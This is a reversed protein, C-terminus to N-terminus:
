RSELSHFRNLSQPYSELNLYRISTSFITFYQVCSRLIENALLILFSQWLLLSESLILFVELASTVRIIFSLVCICSIFFNSLYKESFYFLLRGFSTFIIKKALKITRKHGSGSIQIADQAICLLHSIFPKGAVKLAYLQRLACCKIESIDSNLLAKRTIEM